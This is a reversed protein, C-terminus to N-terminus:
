KTYELVPIIDGMKKYEQYNKYTTNKRKYFYSPDVLIIKKNPKQIVMVDDKGPYSMAYSYGFDDDESGDDGFPRDSKFPNFDVLDRDSFTYGSAFKYGKQKLLNSLLMWDDESDIYFAWPKSEIIEKLIDTMKIM